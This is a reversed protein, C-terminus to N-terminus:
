PRVLLPFESAPSRSGRSPRPRTGTVASFKRASRFTSSSARARPRPCSTDVHALLRERGDICIRMEEGRAAVDGREAAPIEPQQCPTEGIHEPAPEAPDRDDDPPQRHRRPRGRAGAQRSPAGSRPLLTAPWSGRRANIEINFRGLESTWGPDEIAALVEANTMAAAGADVLNLEIEVGIQRSETDFRSERLMRALVDLCPTVKERYARRDQQSVTMSPVDRGMFARWSRGPRPVRKWMRM